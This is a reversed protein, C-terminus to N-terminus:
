LRSFKPSVTHSCGWPGLIRRPYWIISTLLMRIQHQKYNMINLVLDDSIFWYCYQHHCPSSSFSQKWLLINITVQSLHELSEWHSLLVRFIIRLNNRDRESYKFCFIFKCMRAHMSQSDAYWCCLHNLCSSHGCKINELIWFQAPVAVCLLSSFVTHKSIYKVMQGHIYVQM